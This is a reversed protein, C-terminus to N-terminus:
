GVSSVSTSPKVVGGVSVGGVSVGGDINYSEALGEAASVAAVFLGGHLSSSDEPTLTNSNVLELLGRSTMWEWM